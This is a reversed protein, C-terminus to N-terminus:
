INHPAETDSPHEAESRWPKFKSVQAQLVTDNWEDLM